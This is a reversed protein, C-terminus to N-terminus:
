NQKVEKESREKKRETTWKRKKGEKTESEGERRSLVNYLAEVSCWAIFTYQLLPLLAGSM